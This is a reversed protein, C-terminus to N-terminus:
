LNDKLVIKNKNKAVFDRTEHIDLKFEVVYVKNITTGNGLEVFNIPANVINSKTVGTVIYESGNSMTLRYIKFDEPLQSLRM